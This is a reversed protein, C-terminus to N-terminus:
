FAAGQREIAGYAKMPVREVSWATIFTAAFFVVLLLTRRLTSGSM